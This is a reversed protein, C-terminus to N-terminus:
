LGDMNTWTHTNKRNRKWRTRYSALTKCKEWTKEEVKRPFIKTAKTAVKNDLEYGTLEVEKSLHNFAENSITLTVFYGRKDNKIRRTTQNEM